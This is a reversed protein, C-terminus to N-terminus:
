LGAPHYDRHHYIYKTLLRRITMDTFANLLPPSPLLQGLLMKKAADKEAMFLLLIISSM